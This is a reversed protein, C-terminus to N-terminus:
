EWANLCFPRHVASIRALAPDRELIAGGLVLGIRRRVERDAAVVDFEDVAVEGTTPLLTSVIKALTCKGAGNLGILEHMRSHPIKLHM